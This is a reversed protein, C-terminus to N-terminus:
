LDMLGTVMDHVVLCAAGRAGNWEGREEVVEVSAPDIGRGYAHKQLSEHMARHYNTDFVVPPAGDVATLAPGTLVIRSTDLMDVLISLGRGMYKGAQTFARIAYPDGDAALKRAEALNTAEKPAATLIANRTAMAELCGRDGCRCPLGDPEVQINGLELSKGTAGRYIEHEIFQAAGIGVETVLVVSFPADNFYAGGGYLQYAAARGNADNDVVIDSKDVGTVDRIRQRLQVTPGWEEMLNRGYGWRLDPAFLVEGTRRNIHGGLVAGLGVIPDLGQELVGPHLAGVRDLLQNKLVAFLSRITDVVTDEDIWGKNPEGGTWAQAGLDAIETLVIDGALNMVTGVVKDATIEFGVIHLIRDNVVVPKPRRGQARTPEPSTSRVLKRKELTKVAAAVTSPPMDLLTAIDSVTCNQVSVITAFIRELSSSPTGKKTTPVAYGRRQAERKQKKAQEVTPRPDDQEVSM